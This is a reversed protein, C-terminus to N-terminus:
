AFVEAAYELVRLVTDLPQAKMEISVYGEYGGDRLVAAVERHVARHEIPALGPESLHVHRVAALNQALTHVNEGNALLAGIDYNVGLQPVRAAFAFAEESTNCFNTGYMAPNAELSVTTGVEAADAAIATFFAEADRPTQGLLMVRGRPCGFVLSPCHLAAAFACAARTYARLRPADEACFLNGTQGYWISQMSPAFFGSNALAAEAERVKKYPNEGVLRTPSIELGTCGCDRMASFAAPEDEKTFGINSIARKM